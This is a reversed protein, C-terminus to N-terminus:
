VREVHWCKEHKKEVVNNDEDVVTYKAMFTLDGAAAYDLVHQQLSLHKM